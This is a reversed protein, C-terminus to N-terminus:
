LDAYKKVFDVWDINFPIVLYKGQPSVLIKSPYSNINYSKEVLKDSMAVPFTYKNETM